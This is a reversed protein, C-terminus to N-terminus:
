FGTAVTFMTALPNVFPKRFSSERQQPVSSPIALDDYKLQSCPPKRSNAWRAYKYAKDDKFGAVHPWGYNPGSTLINIEDDTKPGHESSYIIGNAAIDLGQPNRHGYTYVHSIVGKLKPNDPPISGDLSIRLSKGVYSAYNRVAIENQTPLRQAEIPLCFNQFQNHGQDGITFFLKNEPGIKLRGGDHDDGAPLRTIVDVPDSLTAKAADYHLRVIKGYLYRYPSAPDVVDPDAGKQKDIYTYAVYVYDNGTGKLLEPHLAM